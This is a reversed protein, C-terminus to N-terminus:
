RPAAAAAPQGGAPQSGTLQSGAPRGDEALKRQLEELQEQEESEKVMILEADSLRGTVTRYLDHLLILGTSVGFM